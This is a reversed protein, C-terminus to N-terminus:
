PQQALPRPLAERHGHQLLARCRVQRLLHRALGLEDLLTCLACRVSGLARSDVRQRKGLVSPTRAAAASLAVGVLLCVVKLVAVGADVAAANPAVHSDSALLAAAPQAGVRVALAGLLLLSLCKLHLSDDALTHGVLLRDVGVMAAGCCADDEIADRPLGPSLAGKNLKLLAQSSVCCCFLCRGSLVRLEDVELLRLAHKRCANLHNSIRWLGM